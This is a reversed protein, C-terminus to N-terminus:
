RRRSEPRHHDRERRRHPQGARGPAHGLRDRQRLRLLHRGAQHRGLRWGRVQRDRRDSVAPRNVTLAATASDGQSGVAYITHSGQATGAPLTITATAAGAAPISTPSLTSTLTTGTASDLKFAVTQGATYGTLSASVTAPLSTVTTASTISLGPAQITVAASAASETGLWSDLSPTM